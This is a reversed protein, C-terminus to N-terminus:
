DSSETERLFGKGYRIKLVEAIYQLEGKTLSHRDSKMYDINVGALAKLVYLARQLVGPSERGPQILGWMERAVREGGMEIVAEVLEPRVTRKSFQEIFWDFHGKAKKRDVIKKWRDTGKEEFAQNINSEWRTGLIAKVIRRVVDGTGDYRLFPGRGANAIKNLAVVTEPELLRTVQGSAKYIVAVKGKFERAKELCAKREKPFPPADGIIVVVKEARAQWALDKCAVEMATNIAAYGEASGGSICVSHMFNLLEYPDHVLPTHAAVFASSYSEGKYTILSIRVNPVINKLVHIMEKITAKVELIFGEMSGTSDFLIAIDVGGERLGEVHKRWARSSAGKGSGGGFIISGIDKESSSVGGPGVAAHLKDIVSDDFQNEESIAEESNDHLPDPLVPEPAKLEDLSLDKSLPSETDDLNPGDLDEAFVDQFFGQTRTKDVKRMEINSLLILLLLHFAIAIGLWHCRKVLQSMAQKFENEYSIVPDLPGGDGGFSLKGTVRFEMSGIRIVDKPSLNKFQVPYGNVLTPRAASESFLIPEGQENLEMRCQIEAIDPHAVRIDCKRSRGLIIPKDKNLFYRRHLGRFSCTLMYTRKVLSRGSGGSDSAKLNMGM